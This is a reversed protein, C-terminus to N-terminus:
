FAQRLLYNSLGNTQLFKKTIDQGFGMSAGRKSPTRGQLPSPDAWLLDCMAGKEPPELFRFINKIDKLTVSDESPLGGHCVM